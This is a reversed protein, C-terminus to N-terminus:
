TRGVRGGRFILTVGILLLLVDTTVRWGWGLELGAGLVCMVGLLVDLWRPNEDERSM